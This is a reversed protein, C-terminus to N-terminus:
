DMTDVQSSVDSFVGTFFHFLTLTNFIIIDIFNNELFRSINEIKLGRRYSKNNVIFLIHNSEPPYITSLILFKMGDERGEPIQKANRLIRQCKM